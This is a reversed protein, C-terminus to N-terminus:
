AAHRMVDAVPAKLAACTRQYAADLARAGVDLADPGPRPLDDFVLAVLGPRRPIITHAGQPGRWPSRAALHHYLVRAQRMGALGPRDAVGGDLYPRGGIWVPHFMLPVSCSARVARGLPGHDIVRTRRGIVDYVSLALPTPCDEIHAMPLWDDLLRQFRAGRLWGFGPFPDWFDHKNLGLLKDALAAPTLGAAWAAGVLAGASAGSIAAPRLGHEALATVVGAHAFFGFFGSSLTM